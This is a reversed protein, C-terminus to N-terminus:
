VVPLDLIVRSKCANYTALFGYKEANTSYFELRIVTSHVEITEPLENLCYQMLIPADFEVGSRILLFNETQPSQCETDPDGHVIRHFNFSITNVTKTDPKFIWIYLGDTSTIQYLGDM